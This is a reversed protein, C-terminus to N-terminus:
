QLNVMSDTLSLIKFIPWIYLYRVINTWRIELGDLTVLNYCTEKHRSGIYVTLWFFMGSYKKDMTWCCKQPFDAMRSRFVERDLQQFDFVLVGHIAQFNAWKTIGMLYLRQIIDNRRAVRINEIDFRVFIYIYPKTHVHLLHSSTSVRKAFRFCFNKLPKTWKSLM